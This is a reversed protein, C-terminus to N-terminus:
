GLMSGPECEKIRGVKWSRIEGKGKNRKGSSWASIPVEKKRTVFHNEYAENLDTDQQITIIKEYTQRQVLIYARCWKISIKEPGLGIYKSM